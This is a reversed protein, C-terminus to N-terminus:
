EEYLGWKERSDLTEKPGGYKPFSGSFDAIRLKERPNSPNVSCGIDKMGLGLRGMCVLGEVRSRTYHPLLPLSRGVNNARPM